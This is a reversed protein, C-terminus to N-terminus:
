PVGTWRKTQAVPVNLADLARGVSQTVVEDLDRSRHYFAPVPPAIIAGALTAESM